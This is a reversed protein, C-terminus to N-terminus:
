ILDRILKVDILLTYVHIVEDFVQRFGKCRCSLFM